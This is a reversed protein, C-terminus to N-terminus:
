FIVEKNRKDPKKAVDDAGEGTITITGSVLICANIHDCLNSTKFKISSIDYKERSEDNIEVWTRTTFKSPQNVTGNLLNIIKQYEM